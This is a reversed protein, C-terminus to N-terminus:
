IQLVYIYIYEIDICLYIYMYQISHISLFVYIYLYIHLIIVARRSRQLKRRAKRFGGLAAAPVELVAIGAEDLGHDWIKWSDEM